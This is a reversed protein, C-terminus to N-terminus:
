SQRADLAAAVTITSDPAGDTANPRMYPLNNQGVFSRGVKRKRWHVVRGAQRHERDRRACDREPGAIHEAYHVSPGEPLGAASCRLFTLSRGL